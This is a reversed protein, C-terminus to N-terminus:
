TPDVNLVITAVGVALNTIVMSTMTNDVKLAVTRILMAVIGIIIIEVTM